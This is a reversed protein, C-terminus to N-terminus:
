TITMRRVVDVFRRQWHLRKLWLIHLGIGQSMQRCAGTIVSFQKEIYKTDSWLTDIVCDVFAINDVEDIDKIIGFRYVKDLIVYIRVDDGFDVYVLSCLQDIDEILGIYCMRDFPDYVNVYDGIALDIGLSDKM